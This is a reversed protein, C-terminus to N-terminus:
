NDPTSAVWERNGDPKWLYTSRNYSKNEDNTISYMTPVDPTGDAIMLAYTAKLKYTIKDSIQGLNVAENSASGNPIIVKGGTIELARFDFASTITPNILIGRTIGNAGGTQNIIPDIDLFNFVANGSTPNVTKNTFGVIDKTGTIQNLYIPNFRYQSDGFCTFTLVGTVNSFTMGSGEDTGFFGGNNAKSYFSGNERIISVETNSNNLFSVKKGANMKLEVDGVNNNRINDGTKTWFLEAIADTIQKQLKGFAVLVSDTSVIAGGTALSLGSLLTSLVRATTFYLNTNEAVNVTTLNVVGTQGNVSAVADTNDVKQWSSGTSILWDGVLFSIGAFTGDTTAIYYIGENAVYGTIATTDNTITITALATGLKTKANNTLTAVMTTCNVMGGHVLQGLIADPLYELDITASANLPAYGNPEGKNSQLEAGSVGATVANDVYIKQTYDLDTINASYNSDGSLGRFDSRTSLLLLQTRGIQMQSYTDNLIDYCYLYIGTDEITIRNIFFEDQYIFGKGNAVELMGTIPKTTGTYPIATNELQELNVAQNATTATPVIPSQVFTKVDEITENGTKHVAIRNVEEITALTNIDIERGVVRVVANITSGSKINEVDYIDLVSLDVDNYTVSDYKGIGLINNYLDYLYLRYNTNEYNFATNMARLDGEFEISVVSTIPDATSFNILDKFEQGIYTIPSEGIIPNAKSNADSQSYSRLVGEKWNLEKAISCVLSIGGINGEQVTSDNPLTIPQVFTKVGDITQAETLKVYINGVIPTSPTGIVTDDVDIETVLVSGIPINPRIRITLSEQGKILVIQNSQNAVLIDKRLYDPECLTETINTITTTQYNVGEYFWQAGSPVSVVLDSVTIEGVSLLQSYNGNNIADIIKQIELSESTGSKSVHIKSSPNLTSQIPLEDIKKANTSIANLSATIAALRETVFAQFSM